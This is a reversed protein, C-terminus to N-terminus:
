LFANIRDAFPERLIPLRKVALPQGPVLVFVLTEREAAYFLVIPGVEETIARLQRADLPQANVLSNGSALLREFALQDLELDIVRQQNRFEETQPGELSDVLRHALAAAQRELDLRRSEKEDPLASPFKGEPSIATIQDLLIRSRATDASV